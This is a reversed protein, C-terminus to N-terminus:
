WVCHSAVRMRPEKVAITAGEREPSQDATCYWSSWKPRNIVKRVVSGVDDHALRQLHSGSMSQLQYGIQKTRSKEKLTNNDQTM